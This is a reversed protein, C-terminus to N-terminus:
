ASELTKIQFQTRANNIFRGSTGELWFEQEFDLDSTLSATRVALQEGPGQSANCMEQIYLQAHIRWGLLSVAAPRYPAAGEAKSQSALTSQVCGM